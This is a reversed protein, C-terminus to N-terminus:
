PKEAVSMSVNLDKPNSVIQPTQSIDDGKEEKVRKIVLPRAYEFSDRVTGKKLQLGEIFYRTFISNGLIKSEWSKERADSASILLKGFTSAKRDGPLGKSGEEEDDLGKSGDNDDGLLRLALDQGSRGWGEDDDVTLTKGGTRIFGPIKDYAANSYCADMIVVLHRTRVGRIFSRLDRENLSTKWIRERPKVESDYTVVNLGGFKDPPTGHSSVYFVLLDEPKVKAKLKELERKIRDRTADKNRLLVVNQKKFGGGKPDSLYVYFDQADKSAFELKQIKKEKFEGVGILLAYKKGVAALPDIATESANPEQQTSTGLSATSTASSRDPQADAKEDRPIPSATANNLPKTSSTAAPQLESPSPPLRVPETQATIVPKVQPSSEATAAGETLPSALRTTPESHRPTSGIDATGLPATIVRPAPKSPDTITSTSTPNQQPPTNITNQTQSPAAGSSGITGASPKDAATAQTPKGVSSLAPGRGTAHERDEPLKVDRKHTEQVSQATEAANVPPASLVSQSNATSQTAPPTSSPTAVAVTSENRPAQPDPQSAPTTPAPKGWTDTSPPESVKLKAIPASTPASQETGPKPSSNYIQNVQPTAVQAPSTTTSAVSDSQETVRPREIMPVPPIPLKQTTSTNVPETKRITNPSASGVPPAPALAAATTRSVAPSTTEVSPDREIPVSSASEPSAPRAVSSRALIAAEQTAAAQVPEREEVQPMRPAPLERQANTFEGPGSICLKRKGAMIEPACQEWRKHRIDLPTIPSVWKVGVVTQAISFAKDVEDENEFRGHLEIRRHRDLIVNATGLGEKGFQKNIEAVHESGPSELAKKGGAFAATFAFVMASLVIAVSPAATAYRRRQLPDLGVKTM